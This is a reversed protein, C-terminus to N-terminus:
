KRTWSTNKAARRIKGGGSEYCRNKLRWKEYVSRLLNIRCKTQNILSIFANMGPNILILGLLKPTEERIAM